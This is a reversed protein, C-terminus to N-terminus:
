SLRLFIKKFVVNSIDALTPYISAQTWVPHSKKPFSVSLPVSRLPVQLLCGAQPHQFGWAPLCEDKVASSSLVFLLMKSALQLLCAEAALSM